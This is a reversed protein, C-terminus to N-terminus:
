RRLSRFHDERPKESKEDSSEDNRRESSGKRRGFIRRCVSGDGGNRFVRRRKRGKNDNRLPHRQNERKEILELQVRLNEVSDPCPKLNPMSLVSTYGGAAAAASGSEITEKYSFGPERLHVHVDTFGPFVYKGSFDFIFAGDCQIDNGIDSVIGGQVLIDAKELKQGTYITAGKLLYDMDGKPPGPRRSSDSKKLARGDGRNTNRIKAIICCLPFITLCKLLFHPGFGARM